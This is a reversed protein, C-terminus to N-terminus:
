KRFPVSVASFIIPGKDLVVVRKAHRDTTEDESSQKLLLVPLPKIRLM